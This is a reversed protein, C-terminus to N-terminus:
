KGTAPSLTFIEFGDDTVLLTHEFQASLSGDRTVATWGDGLLESHYTGMNIMPEVTVTMGKRLLYATRMHRDTGFADDLLANLADASTGTLPSFQIM